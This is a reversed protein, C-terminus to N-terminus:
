QKSRKVRKKIRIFPLGIEVSTESEDIGLDDDDPILLDAIIEGARSILSKQQPSNEPLHQITTIARSM